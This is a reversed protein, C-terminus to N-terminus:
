GAVKVILPMLVDPDLSEGEPKFMSIFRKYHKSRPMKGGELAKSVPHKNLIKYFKSVSTCKIGHRSAAEPDKCVNRLQVNAKRWFSDIKAAQDHLDDIDETLVNQIEEQIIQKLKSKTLKM